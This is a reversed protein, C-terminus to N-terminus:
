KIGGVPIPDKAKEGSFILSNPKDNIQRLVPQLETMVQEFRALAQELNRYPEADPGFGDLTNQIQQLSNRVESPIAQTDQNALIVALENAMKEAALLTKQSANLSNNLSALTDEVPLNNIKSLIASIQKQIQAFGGAKTPFVDYDGYRALEPMEEEPYLETDVLLAGTLL